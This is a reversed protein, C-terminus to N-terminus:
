IRVIEVKRPDVELWDTYGTADQGSVRRYMKGCHRCIAWEGGKHTIPTTVFDKSPVCCEREITETIKM